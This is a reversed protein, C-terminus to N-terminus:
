LQDLYFAKMQYFIVERSKYKEKRKLRYKNRSYKAEQENNDM